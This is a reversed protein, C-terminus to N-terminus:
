KELIGREKVLDRNLAHENSFKDPYRAKLKEINTAMIESLDWGHLNCMNAIYWMIDGIEEKINIFDLDKGYAIHKKFVDAIEASETQMGTIMHFDDLLSTECKALTREAQKQYEQTTMAESIVSEPDVPSTFGKGNEEKFMITHTGDEFQILSGRLIEGTELCKGSYIIKKM